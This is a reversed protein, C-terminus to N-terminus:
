PNYKISVRFIPLLWYKETKIAVGPISLSKVLEEYNKKGYIIM